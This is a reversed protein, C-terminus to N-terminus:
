RFRQIPEPRPVVQREPPTQSLWGHREATRVAEKVAESLSPHEIKVPKAARDARKKITVVWVRPPYLWTQPRTFRLMAIDCTKDLRRLQRWLGYSIPVVPSPM